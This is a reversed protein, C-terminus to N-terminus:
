YSFILEASDTKIHPTKGDFPLTDRVYVRLETNTLDAVTTVRWLDLTYYAKVDKNWITPTIVGLSVERGDIMQTVELVGGDYFAQVKLRLKPRFVNTLTNFTGPSWRLLYIPGDMKQDLVSGAPALASVVSSGRYSGQALNIVGQLGYGVGEGSNLTRAMAEARQYESDMQAGPPALIGEIEATAAGVTTATTLGSLRIPTKPLLRNSALNLRLAAHEKHAKHEASPAPGLLATSLSEVEAFVASNTEASAIFQGVEAPTYRPKGAQKVEKKWDSVRMPAVNLPDFYGIDLNKADGALLPFALISADQSAIWGAPVTTEDVQLVYYEGGPMSIFSYAGVPNSATQRKVNEGADVRGNVNDDRVLTLAVNALGTEGADIQEDGDIDNWLSGFVVANAATVNLLHDQQVIGGLNSVMQLPTTSTNGTVGPPRIRLVRPGPMVGPLMYNGQSDSTVANGIRQEGPDIQGNTPSIDAFIEVTAGVIPTDTLDLRGNQNLDNYLTGVITMPMAVGFDVDSVTGGAVTVTRPNTTTSVYGFDNSTTVTYVGDPVSAFTYTGDPTNYSVYFAAGNSAQDRIDITVHYDGDSAVGNEGADRATNGNADFYVIGGVAGSTPLAAATSVFAVSLILIVLLPWLSRYSIPM